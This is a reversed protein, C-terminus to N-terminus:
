EVPIHRGGHRRIARMPVRCEGGALLEIPIVTGEWHGLKSFSAQSFAAGTKGVADAIAMTEYGIAAFSNAPKGYVSQYAASFARASESPADDLDLDTGAFVVNDGADGLAEINSPASFVFDTLIQGQFGSQRLDPFVRLYAPGTGTVFVAEPESQLAKIVLGRIADVDTLGYAETDLITGGGAVFVAAFADRNGIGFEENSHIIVATKFHRAAYEAVPGSQDACTPFIRQVNDQGAIVSEASTQTALVFLGESKAKPILAACVHSAAGIVLDPRNLATAQALVAVGEAPRFQSDQVELALLADPHRDRYLEMGNRISESISAAPGTLTFIGLVRRQGEAAPAASDPRGCGHLTLFLLGLVPLVTAARRLNFTKIEM